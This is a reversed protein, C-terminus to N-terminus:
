SLKGNSYMYSRCTFLGCVHEVDEVIGRAAATSEIMAVIVETEINKETMKLTAIKGTMELDDAATTTAEEGIVTGRMMAHIGDRRTEIGALRDDLIVVLDRPAKRSSTLAIIVM